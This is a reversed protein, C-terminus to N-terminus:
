AAKEAAQKAKEAATKARESAEVALDTEAQARKGEREVVAVLEEIKATEQDRARAIHQGTDLFWEVEQRSGSMARDAYKRVEAGGSALMAATEVRMDEERAEFRGESLFAVLDQETGADLAASAERRVAKGGTASVTATSVQLDELLGPRFGGDLFSAVAGDGGDLAASAERRLGVGSRALYAAVAVRNDEATVTALTTGLFTRIDADTGYMADAAAAKTAKGGTLWARVVKARDTDPLEFPTPPEDAATAAGARAPAVLVGPTAAVATVAALTGLLRRRSWFATEM